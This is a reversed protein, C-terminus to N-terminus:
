LSLMSFLVVLSRTVKISQVKSLERPLLTTQAMTTTSCNVDLCSRIPPYIDYFGTWIM